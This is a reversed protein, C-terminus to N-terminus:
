YYVCTDERIYMLYPKEFLTNYICSCLTQLIPIAIVPTNQIKPFM